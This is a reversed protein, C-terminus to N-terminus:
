ARPPSTRPLSTRLVHLAAHLDPLVDVCRARIEPAPQLLDPVMFAMTGAAYAATLGVSSDEFAVCREPAVGLRRAAELYIDPAPKPHRVDDRTAIATFRDLLGARGLHNEAHNRHASTAVAAPLGHAELFDLIEVVGPKLPIREELMSKIIPSYRARFEPVSFAPGYLGQIMANCEILPVGVMSHCFELSMERDMTKATQRMAELYLRETDFLLGDMDFLVAEVPNKLM